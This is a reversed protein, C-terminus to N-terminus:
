AGSGPLSQVRPEVHGSAYDLDPVIFVDKLEVQLPIETPTYICRESVCSCPKALLAGSCHPREKEKLRIIFSFALELGKWALRLLASATRM